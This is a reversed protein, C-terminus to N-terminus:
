ASHYELVISFQVDSTTQVQVAAATALHAFLSFGGADRYRDSPDSLWSLHM